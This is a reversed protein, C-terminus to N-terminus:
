RRRSVPVMALDSATWRDEWGVHAAVRWLVTDDPALRVLDPPTVVTDRTLLEWIVSGDRAYVTIRYRDARPVSTWQFSNIAAVAGLPAVLRPAAFATVSEERYIRQTLGPPSPRGVMVILGAAAVAAFLSGGIVARRHTHQHHSGLRDLETRVEPAELLRAVSAVESRCRACDVLHARVFPTGAVDNSGEAIAAIYEADFCNPSAHVAPSSVLRMASSESRLADVARHCEACHALHRPLGERAVDADTFAFRVLEAETLHPNTV